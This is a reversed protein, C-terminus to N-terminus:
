SLLRFIHVLNNYSYFTYPILSLESVHNKRYNWNFLIFGKLSLLYYYNSTFYTHRFIFPVYYTNYNFTKNIDREKLEVFLNKIIYFFTVTNTYELITM